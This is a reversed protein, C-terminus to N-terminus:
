PVCPRRRAPSGVDPGSAIRLGLWCTPETSILQDRDRFVLMESYSPRDRGDLGV